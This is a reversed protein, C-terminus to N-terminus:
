ADLEWKLRLQEPHNMRMALAMDSDQLVGMLRESAQQISEGPDVIPSVRHHHFLYAIAATHEVQSFKKGPCVRPGSAWPIYTNEKPQVPVETDTGGSDQQLWRQPRWVLRDDGWHQADSQVAANNVFVLTNAPITYTESGLKLNRPLTGTCRPIGNL